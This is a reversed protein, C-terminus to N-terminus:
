TRHKKRAAAVIEDVTRKSLGSAVGRDLESCLLAIREDDSLNELYAIDDDNPAAWSRIGERKRYGTM